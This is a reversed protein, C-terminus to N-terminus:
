RGLGRIWHGLAMPGDPGARPAWAGRARMEGPTVGFRERFRRSFHAPCDFGHEEAIVRVPRHRQAPDALARAARDLRLTLVYRTVGGRPAFMRYLTARSLHFRDALLESTLEPSALNDLIFREIRDREVAVLHPRARDLSAVTPGLCAAIMAMTGEVISPIEPATVRPLRRELSRLYDRLLGALATDGRLVAGGLGGAHHLASALLPKPLLVNFLSSDDASSEVTKSLDLLAFDGAEVRVERAGNVGHYGGRRYLQFLYHDLRSSAVLARSRVYRQRATRIPGVVLAGLNYGQLSLHFSGEDAARVDFMAGLNERWLALEQEPPLVGRRYVVSPVREVIASRAARRTRM